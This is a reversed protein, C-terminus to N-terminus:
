ETSIVRVVYLKAILHLILYILILHLILFFITYKQNKLILPNGKVSKIKTSRMYKFM